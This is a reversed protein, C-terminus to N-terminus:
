LVWRFYIAYVLEAHERSLRGNRKWKDHIEDFLDPNFFKDGNNDLFKNIGDFMKQIEEKTFRSQKLYTEKM